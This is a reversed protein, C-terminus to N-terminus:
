KSSIWNSVFCVVSSCCILLLGIPVTIFMWLFPLGSGASPDDPPLRWIFYLYDKAYKESVLFAPLPWLIGYFGVLFILWSIYTFFLKM